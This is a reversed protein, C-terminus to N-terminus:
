GRKEEEDGVFWGVPQTRHKRMALAQDLKSKGNIELCPIHSIIPWYEGSVNICKGQLVPCGSITLRGLSAPLGTKPLFRLKHCDKIQLEELAMLNELGRSLSELKQLSEMCLNTLTSPFMLGEDDPFSVMDAAPCAGVIKIEKLCHVKDLGWESMPQDLKECNVIELSTITPPLVAESISTLAECNSLSLEQLSTLNRMQNPLAKLKGCNSVRFIKITPVSFGSKPFSESALCDGLCLYELRSASNENDDRRVEGDPLCQINKCNEIRLKKITLLSIGKPFSKMSPCGRIELEKLLCHHNNCGNMWFTDPLTELAECDLIKLCKLTYPLGTAPFSAFKQCSEIKLDKLSSLHFLRQREGVLSELEPCNKIVLSKLWPLMNADTESGNPWFCTFESCDEIELVELKVLAKTLEETLCTLNSIRKIKLKTISSQDVISRLIVYSSGEITLEGLGSFSLPSITLQPCKQVDLKVLSCFTRPLEGALKPCDRVTLERLLPFVQVNGVPSIWEKWEKMNEFRLSELSPFAKNVPSCDGYFKHGLSTVASMGKINLKRLLPLRGLTPFPTCNICDSLDIQVIKSLSSNGVWSPFGIAGYYSISLRQLDKPPHLGELVQMQNRSNSCLKFDDGWELVLETLGHKQSLNAVKADQIDVVNHLRLISLQGRLLTLDKLERLTLGGTEGIIFKPLARLSTLNGLGPPMEKLKPTDNIGLHRLKTLRGIEVPLAVLERCQNLLLIQLNYLASVSEPLLRIATKSLNLYRLYKLDGISNSLEGIFYGSLSLVRLRKLKPLLQDSVKSSLYCYRTQNPMPLALFSRVCKMRNFIEFRQSVDYQRPIFSVHRAKEFYDQDDDIQPRNEMNFCLYGAVSQALDINLDHMVFMSKNNNSQQFFSMSLLDSFCNRGLEELQLFGEALWLLVLEDQNFEYDKPLLSCYAFCPKLESPLDHYSWRLSPFIGGNEEPLDLMKSRSLAEWDKYALKNRLHCAMTEVALPLGKCKKVIETGIQKLHPHVDFNKSGLAHCALVSLCDAYALEKLHYAPLTGTIQSVKQNRTTIIIKSESNGVEFPRILQCWDEYKQHWVDDLVLLFKKGSLEEKLKLQLLNLDTIHFVGSNVEKLIVETVKTVDFDESVHIWAKLDFFANVKYDNYVLQALTTKGIGGMGTIPIVPVQADSTRQVLLLKLMAEKDKERGFVNVENVLSTAPSRLDRAENAKGGVNEGLELLNKQTAIEKLITAIKKIKSGMKVRFRVASLSLRLSSPFLKKVLSSSTHSQATWKRQLAEYAFEELLDEVDDASARLEDLWIKVSKNKVQREEADTLVANISRLRSDWKKLENDIKAKRAFNMLETASFM